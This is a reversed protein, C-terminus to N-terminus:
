VSGDGFITVGDAGLHDADGWRGASWRGGAWTFWNLSANVLPVPRPAELALGTAARYASDLVLGHTVVAITEGAHRVALEELAACSRAFFAAPSEGGPVAYHPDRSMFRLYTQPDRAAMEARTLGEFVGFHRERLREDDVITHGTADAICQATLRARPLDSSYLSTFPLSQLRAALQQVQWLGRGTLPSDLQGQMRRETNWLTEGHRILILQTM